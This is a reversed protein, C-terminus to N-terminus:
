PPNHLREPNFLLDRMMDESLCEHRVEELSFGVYHRDLVQCPMPAFPCGQEIVRAHVLLTRLGDMPVDHIVQESSSKAQSSCVEYPITNRCPEGHTGKLNFEM